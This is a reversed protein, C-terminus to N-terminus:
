GQASTRNSTGDEFINEYVDRGYSTPLPAGEVLRFTRRGDDQREARLFLTEDAYERYTSDALDFLHTVYFVDIGADLLARIVQRAIESGERENTAAFSENFLVLSGRRVNDVIKSMRSLEEDLKGSDMEADEERKYHTFLGNCLNAALSDAPVFMGCQMMLRAVGVSRLFTSKGGQNAGTIMVLSANQADVHNGVARADIRLSLCVDYLGQVSLTPQGSPVPVPLCVPEGKAALRAQLNLCGVYFGLEWRLMAFFGLIHDAAQALANAASNIGRDRLEALATAGAVDREHIRLTYASHETLGLRELWGPRAMDPGRLLYDIGKSGKGLEASLLVGNRFRLQRLHEEVVHFYDDSLERTLLQFFAVLGGSQFDGAREDAIRRLRKLIGIFLHLAKVSRRLVADPYRGFRWIEKEGVLAEVALDYIERVVQTQVMCDNLIRQRYAITTLDDLSSLVVLRAVEAVFDDGHGMAAFLTDLNLDATLEPENAPLESEIDFNRDPYLLHPRM